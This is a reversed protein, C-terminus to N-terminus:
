NIYQIIGNYAPAAAAAAPAPAPAAAAAALLLLLWCFISNQLSSKKL